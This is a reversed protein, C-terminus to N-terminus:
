FIEDQRCQLCRNGPRCDPRGYPCAGIQGIAWKAAAILRSLIKM